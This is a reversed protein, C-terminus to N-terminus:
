EFDFLDKVPVDLVRALKFVTKLGPRNINVEIKGLFDHSIGAKEALQEQTLGAKERFYKIKLGLLKYEKDFDM